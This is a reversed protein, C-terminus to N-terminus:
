GGFEEAVRDAYWGALAAVRNTFSNRARDKFAKVDTTRAAMTGYILIGEAVPIVMLHVQMKGPDVIRFIGKYRMPTLNVITAGYTEGASRYTMSSQNKGFSMDKQHIYIADEAPVASVLLDPLPRKRKPDDIVWAEEFLLRM